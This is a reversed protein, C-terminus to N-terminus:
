TTSCASARRSVVEDNQAIADAFDLIVLDAAEVCRGTSTEVTRMYKVGCIHTSCLCRHTQGTFTFPLSWLLRGGEYGQGRANGSTPPSHRSSPQRNSETEEGGAAGWNAADTTQAKLANTKSATDNADGRNGGILWRSKTPSLQIQDVRDPQGNTTDLVHWRQRDKGALRLDGAIRCLYYVSSSPAAGYRGASNTSQKTEQDVHLHTALTRRAPMASHRWALDASKGSISLGHTLMNSQLRHLSYHCMSTFNPLWDLLVTGASQPFSLVNRPLYPLGKPELVAGQAICQVLSDTNRRQRLNVLAVERLQWYFCGDQKRREGTYVRWTNRSTQHLHCTSYGEPVDVALTGKLASSNAASEGREASSFQSLDLVYFAQYPHGMRPISESVLLLSDVLAVPSCKRNQLVPVTLPEGSSNRRWAWSIYYDGDYASWVVTYDNSLLVHPSDASDVIAYDRLQLIMASSSRETHEDYKSRVSSHELAYLRTRIEVNSAAYNSRPHYVVLTRWPSTALVSIEGTNELVPLSIHHKSYQAQRWREHLTSRALYRWFWYLLVGNQVVCAPISEQQKHEPPENEADNVCLPWTSQPHRQQYWRQWEEEEPRLPFTANYRQKWVAHNFAIIVFLKRCVLALQASTFGDLLYPIRHLLEAPLAALSPGSEALASSQM